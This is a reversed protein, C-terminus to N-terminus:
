SHNHGDLVMQHLYHYSSSHLLAEIPAMANGNGSQNIEQTATFRSQCMSQYDVILIRPHPHGPYEM